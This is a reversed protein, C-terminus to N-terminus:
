LIVWHNMFQYSLITINPTSKGIQANKNIANTATIITQFSKLNAIFINNTITTNKIM